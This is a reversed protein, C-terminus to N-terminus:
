APGGDVAGFGVSGQGEPCIREPVGGFHTASITLNLRRALTAPDTDGAEAM